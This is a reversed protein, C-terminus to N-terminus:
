SITHPISDTLAPDGFFQIPGPFLYQDGLAWKEREKQFLLFPKGSLDVLAKQIAPVAKGKRTEINMLMTIPLGGLQWESVPRELHKVCCMYGTVGEDLLLAAGHGLACCYNADFNSPFGARGEYGFFHPVASFKGKFGRAKLEKSVTEILLRETEIPSVNVNGHPDRELLLQKQITEPMASLCNASASTLKKLAESPDHVAMLQNLEQILVKIEPIFEILGEPILILGYDKGAESRKAVLDALGKTIQALTMKKAAIEESILAANPHTSLACELAIHSASRGMLKVFHTYKKASLADRGINGIMESYTKCATDFGFSTAIYENKLDGDITKPVGVVKTHSGNKIFYEALIAANTNSDDGGIIVLGDLQLRQLNSLSSQLQEETEIKTRGSGIMDFGGQNRYPNVIEATLEKYKNGIIGGPGGLFGFLRSETNLIKLADFLGAIVNHGGAAQGGSLVVGVRLPKSQRESGEEASLMPRGFTHPFLQRLEDVDQIATTAKGKSWHVKKLHRLAKPLQPSYARRFKDLM